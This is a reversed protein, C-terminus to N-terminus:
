SSRPPSFAISAPQHQRGDRAHVLQMVIAAAKAAIAVMKCLRDATTLQSDEIRLGQRKLTRFFQEITWRPSVLRRDALCPSM